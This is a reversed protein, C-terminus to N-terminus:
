DDIREGTISDTRVLIGFMMLFVIMAIVLAQEPKFVWAVAGWAGAMVASFVICFLLHHTPRSM